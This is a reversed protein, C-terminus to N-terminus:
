SERILGEEENRCIHFDAPQVSPSPRCRSARRASSAPRSIDRNKAAALRQREDGAPMSDASRPYKTMGAIHRKHTRCVTQSAFRPTETRFASSSSSAPARNGGRMVLKDDRRAGPARALIEPRRGTPRTTAERRVELRIADPALCNDTQLPPERPM